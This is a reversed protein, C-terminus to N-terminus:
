FPIDDELDAPEREKRAPLLATPAETPPLRRQEDEAAKAEAVVQMINSTLKSVVEYSAWLSGPVSLIQFAFMTVALLNLRKKELEVEFEALRKLLAGRKADSFNSQDIAVKLGHLYSRVRDKDGPEILVSERRGRMSSDLLLQTMYHDLDARFQRYDDNGKNYRDRRPMSLSVFPEVGLRKGAALVINQFCYRAEQLEEWDSEEGSSLSRTLDRLRKDAHRIFMMFAAPKDEPLEDLEEQTIFDFIDM